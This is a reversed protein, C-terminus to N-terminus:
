SHARCLALRSIAAPRAALTASDEDGYARRLVALREEFLLRAGAKDGSNLLAAALHGQADLRAGDEDPNDRHLAWRARGLELEILGSYAQRWLFQLTVFYASSTATPAATLRPLALERQRNLM